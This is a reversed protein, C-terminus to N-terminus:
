AIAQEVAKEFRDVDASWVPTNLVAEKATIAACLDTFLGADLAVLQPKLTHVVRVVKDHDGRARADRLVGLREPAMKRLFALALPDAEPVAPPPLVEAVPPAEVIPAPAPATERLRNKPAPKLVEIEARLAALEKRTRQAARSSRLVLLLVTFLLLVGAGVAIWMWRDADAEARAARDDATKLRANWVLEVSDREAQWREGARQLLLANERGRDKMLEARGQAAERSREYAGKRDGARFLHVALEERASLREDLLGASDALMVAEEMLKVAEKPKLRAALASRLEVSTRADGASDALHIRLRQEAIVRKISDAVHARSQARVNTAIVLLCIVALLSRLVNRM